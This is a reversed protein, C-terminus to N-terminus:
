RPQNREPTGRICSRWAGSQVFPVYSTCCAVDSGVHPKARSQYVPGRPGEINAPHRREETPQHVRGSAKLRPVGRLRRARASGADPVTGDHVRGRRLEAGRGACRPVPAVGREVAVRARGSKQLMRLAASSRLLVPWYALITEEDTM